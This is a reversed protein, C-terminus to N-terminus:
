EPQGGGGPRAEGGLCVSGSRRSKTKNWRGRSGFSGSALRTAKSYAAAFKSDGQVAGAWSSAFDLRDQARTVCCTARGRDTRSAVKQYRFDTASPPLVRHAVPDM